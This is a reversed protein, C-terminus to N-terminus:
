FLDIQRGTIASFSTGLLGLIGDAVPQVQREVYHPYDLPAHAAAAPEAGAVTVVYEIWDGRAPLPLGREAYLRAAQVHPPVNRQYDDLRRRLRKRYVLDADREGALVAGMVQCLYDEYPEALFVRRYLTEQFERALRTWDTRVSELGKFVLREAAGTGVLGAYRKKSGKDSGRVTPMLFRRYHTEFQLELLSELGFAEQLQHQWWTNLDAQLALGAREADADCVANEIWVFVSDTDGYIVQHGRSEIRERTRLLIEHGRRTIATALRSDFFRCGPSGLVGYFSNMIIKIAQSLPSDDAERAADRQQWLQSILAPLIHGERAFHAGLFGPVTASEELEGTMGLALGLPDIAFTRIISPYLSKFDLVLVHDYIGPRSDLVFGGPSAVGSERANPAVFGKRHLRPLYLNDFSAVSGGLRDLNLGTMASRALAFDLLRTKAFIASVLECDRLNYAALRAKDERFLRGIEEGRDSGHLLKGEDLLSRAVAELSFSDFRYFAARLLEIGDLLVRGPIRAARRQGDEDLERWHVVSGARGLNLPVGLQDALRQLYWTDFNVVNWGILVDPDYDAIFALFAQLVEQQSPLGQVHDGFVGEGVIFVRRHEGDDGTAHVAISYLQLGAMATEIDFSVVKLAPRFAASRLAPNVMRQYAGCDTIPGCLSAGGAIFREMLYRDAPNIDAELPEAGRQRLGDALQRAQQYGQSYIATVPSMSFDRLTLPKCSIGHQLALVSQYRSADSEALFFVSREGYIVVQVPGQATAFWFELVIGASDDRWSRSLLFGERYASGPNLSPKM